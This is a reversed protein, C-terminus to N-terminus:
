YVANKITNTIDACKKPTTNGDLMKSARFPVLSLRRRAEEIKWSIAAAKVTTTQEERM